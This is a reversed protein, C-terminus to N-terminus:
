IGYFAGNRKFSVEYSSAMTSLGNAALMLLLMHRSSSYNM